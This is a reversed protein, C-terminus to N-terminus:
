RFAEMGSRLDESMRRWTTEDATLVADPRDGDASQLEVRGDKLLADWAGSGEVELRLRAQPRGVDFVEPDFREALAMLAEPPRPMPRQHNGPGHCASVDHRRREPPIDSASISSM